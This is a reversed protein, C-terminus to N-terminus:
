ITERKQLLRKFDKVKKIEMIEDLSFKVNFATEIENLLVYTNFSDWTEINEQSTEDTIQSVPIDLVKSIIEYLKDTMM